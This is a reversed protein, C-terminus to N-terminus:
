PPPLVTASLTLQARARTRRGRVVVKGTYEGPKADSPVAVVDDYSRTEGAELYVREVSRYVPVRRWGIRAYLLARVVFTDGIDNTNTISAIVHMEEGPYVEAPDVSAQLDVTGRPRGWAWAVTAVGMLIVSAILLSHRTRRTM